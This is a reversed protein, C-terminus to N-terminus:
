PEDDEESLTLRLLSLAKRQRTSVTGPPIGLAEAAARLTLGSFYRLVVVERLEQPLRGVADRLPLSDYEEPGATEPLEELPIERRRRRLEKKCENMLIRTVWTEFFEPRRLKKVAKLARYATEGVADLAMDRSHLYLEATRYLRPKIREFRETFEGHEM